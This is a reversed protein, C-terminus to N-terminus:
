RKTSLYKEILSTIVAKFTKDNKVCELKFAKWLERDITICIRTEHDPIKNRDASTAKAKPQGRQETPM